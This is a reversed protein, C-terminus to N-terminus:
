IHILSLDYGTRKSYAGKTLTDMFKTGSFGPNYGFMRSLTNIPVAGIDYLAAMGSYPGYHTLGTLAKSAPTEAFQYGQKTNVIGSNKKVPPTYVEEVNKYVEGANVFGTRGGSQRPERIGHMVGEKIPGGMNFMPRSLTRM